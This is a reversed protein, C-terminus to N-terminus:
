STANSTADVADVTGTSLVLLMDSSPGTVDGNPLPRKPEDDAADLADGNPPCDDSNPVVDTAAGM